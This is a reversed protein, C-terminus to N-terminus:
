FSGVTLSRGVVLTMRVMLSYYLQRFSRCVRRTMAPSTTGAMWTKRDCSFFCSTSARSLRPCSSDFLGRMLQYRCFCIAAHTMPRALLGGMRKDDGRLRPGM